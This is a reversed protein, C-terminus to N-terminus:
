MHNKAPISLQETSAGTGQDVASIAWMYEHSQGSVETGMDSGFEASVVLQLEDRSEM